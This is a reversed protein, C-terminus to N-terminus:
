LFMAGGVSQKHLRKYYDAIRLILVITYVKSSPPTYISQCVVGKIFDIRIYFDVINKGQSCNPYRFSYEAGCWTRRTTFCERLFNSILCDVPINVNSM